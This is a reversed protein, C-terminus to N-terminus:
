YDDAPEAKEVRKIHANGFNVMIGAGLRNLYTAAYKIVIQFAGQLFLIMGTYINNFRGIFTLHVL